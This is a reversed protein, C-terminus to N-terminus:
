IQIILIECSLHPVSCLFANIMHNFNILAGKGDKLKSNSVFILRVFMEMSLRPM